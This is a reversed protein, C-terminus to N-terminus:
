WSKFLEERDELTATPKSTDANATSKASDNTESDTIDNAKELASWRCLLM